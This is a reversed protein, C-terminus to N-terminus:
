GVSSKISVPKQQGQLVRAAEPLGYDRVADVLEMGSAWAAFSAGALADGAGNASHVTHNTSVPLRYQHHDIQVLAPEAGDTLVFQRFGLKQLGDSLTSLPPESSQPIGLMAQAERRNCFLLTTQGAIPLLRRSKVPSVSLATLTISQNEAWDVLTRICNQSLNADLLLASNHRPRNAHEIHQAGPSVSSKVSGAEPDLSADNLADLKGIIETALLEECLSVDSLGIYLDGQDMIASYRGTTRGALTCLHGIVGSLTLAEKLGTAYPDDGVAGCFHVPETLLPSRAAACAANVAVGGMYRSWSVPNSARAILPSTTTAVDDIHIAGALLLQTSRNSNSNM